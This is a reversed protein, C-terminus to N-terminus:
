KCYEYTSLYHNTHASRVDHRTIRVYTHQTYSATSIRFLGNDARGYERAYGYIIINRDFHIISYSLVIGPCYMYLARDWHDSLFFICKTGANNVTNRFYLPFDYHFLISDNKNIKNNIFVLVNKSSLSNNCLKFECYFVTLTIMTIAHQIIGNGHHTHTANAWALSIHKCLEHIVWINYLIVNILIRNAHSSSCVCTVCLSLIIIIYFPIFSRWMFINM